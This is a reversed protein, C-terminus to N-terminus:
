KKYLATEIEELPANLWTERDADVLKAYGEAYLGDMTWTRELIRRRIIEDSPLPESSNGEQMRIRLLANKHDQIEGSLNKNAQEPMVAWREFLQRQVAVKKAFIEEQLRKENNANNGDEVNM